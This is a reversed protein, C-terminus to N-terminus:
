RAILRLVTQFFRQVRPIDVPRLDRRFLCEVFSPLSVRVFAAWGTDVEGSPGGQLWLRAEDLRLARRVEGEVAEVAKM